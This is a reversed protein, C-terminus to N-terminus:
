TFLNYSDKLLINVIDEISDNHDSIILTSSTEKWFQKAEIENEFPERLQRFIDQSVTEPLSLEATDPWNNIYQM